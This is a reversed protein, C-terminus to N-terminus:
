SYGPEEKDRLLMEDELLLPLPIPFVSFVLSLVKQVLPKLNGYQEMSCHM